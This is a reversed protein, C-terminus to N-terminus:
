VRAQLTKRKEGEVRPRVEGPQVDIRELSHKYTMTGESTRNLRGSAPDDTSDKSVKRCRQTQTTQIESMILRDEQLLNTM